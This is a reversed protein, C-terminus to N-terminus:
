VVDMYRWWLSENKDSSLNFVVFSNVDTNSWKPQWLHENNRCLILRKRLDVGQIEWMPRIQTRNTFCSLPNTMESIVDNGPRCESYIARLCVHNRIQIAFQMFVDHCPFGKRLVSGKIPPIVTQEVTDASSCWRFCWPKVNNAKKHSNRTHCQSEGWLPGSVRFDNGHSSTMM